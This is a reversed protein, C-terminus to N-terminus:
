YPQIVAVVSNQFAPVVAVCGNNKCGQIFYEGQTKERMRPVFPISRGFSEGSPLPDFVGSVKPISRAELHEAPVCLQWWFATQM